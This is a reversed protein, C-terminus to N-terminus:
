FYKFRIQFVTEVAKKAKPGIEKSPGDQKEKTEVTGAWWHKQGLQIGHGV